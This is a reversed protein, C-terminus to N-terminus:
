RLALTLTLFFWSMGDYVLFAHRWLYPVFVKRDQHLGSVHPCLVGITTLTLPLFHFPENKVQLIIGCKFTLGFMHSYAYIKKIEHLTCVSNGYKLFLNAEKIYLQRPSILCDHGDDTISGWFHNLFCVTFHGYVLQSLSTTLPPPNVCCMWAECTAASLCGTCSGAGLGTSQSSVGNLSSVPPGSFSSCMPCCCPGNVM